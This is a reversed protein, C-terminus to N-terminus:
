GVPKLASLFVSREYENEVIILVDRPCSARAQHEQIVAIMAAAATEAELNGAGTGLPPVAVTEIGCETARRLGNLFARRVLAKTTAQEPSQLVVHILFPATLDGGETIAAGGVPLEGMAQLRARAAPGMQLELRRSAATIASGDSAVPRIVAGAEVFLLDDLRVDIM